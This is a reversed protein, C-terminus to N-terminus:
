CPHRESATSLLVISCVRRATLNLSTPQHSRGCRGERTKLLSVPENLRMFRRETQCIVCRHSEVREGGMEKEQLTPNAMGSFRTEGQCRPCKIPDVWTMFDYKFWQSMALVAADEEGFPESPPDRHIVEVRGDLDDWVEGVLQKVTTAFQLDKTQRM